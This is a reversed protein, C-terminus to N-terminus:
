QISDTSNQPFSTTIECTDLHQHCHANCDDPVCLIALGDASNQRVPEYSELLRAIAMSTRLNLLTHLQLSTSCFKVSLRVQIAVGPRADVGGMMSIEEGAYSSLDGAEGLRDDLEASVIGNGLSQPTEVM